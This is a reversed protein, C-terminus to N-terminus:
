KNTRNNIVGNKGWNLLCVQSVSSPCNNPSTYQACQEKPTTSLHSQWIERNCWVLVLGIEINPNADSGRIGENDAGGGWVPEENGGLNPIADSGGAFAM